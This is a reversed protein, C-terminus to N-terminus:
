LDIAAWMALGLPAGAPGEGIYEAALVPELDGHQIRFASLHGPRGANRYKDEPGGRILPAISWGGASVWDEGACSHVIAPPRRVMNTRMSAAVVGMGRQNAQVRLRTAVSEAPLQHKSDRIGMTQM